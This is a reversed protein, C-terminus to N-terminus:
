GQDKTDDLFSAQVAGGAGLLWTGRGGRAIQNTQFGEMAAKMYDVRRFQRQM